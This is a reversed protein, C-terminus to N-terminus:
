RVVGSRILELGGNETAPCTEKHTDSAYDIEM